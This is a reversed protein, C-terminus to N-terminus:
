YSLTALRSASPTHEFSAKRPKLPLYCLDIDISLRPMDLHFLNIATGGKIAFEKHKAVFPLIEILMDVQRKYREFVQM